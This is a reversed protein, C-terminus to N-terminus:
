STATTIVIGIRVVRILIISAVVVAVVLILITVIVITLASVVILVIITPILSLTGTLAGFLIRFSKAVEGHSRIHSASGLHIVVATSIFAVVAIIVSLTTISRGRGL